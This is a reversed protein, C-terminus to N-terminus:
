ERSEWSQTSLFLTLVDYEQQLLYKSISPPMVSYLMIKKFYIKKKVTGFQFLCFEWFSLVKWKFVVRIM